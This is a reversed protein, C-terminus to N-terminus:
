GRRRRRVYGGLGAFALAALALTAPEPVVEGLFDLQAGGPNYQMGTFVLQVYRAEHRDFTYGNLEEDGLPLVTETPDGTFDLDDSFALVITSVRDAGILTIDRRNAYDIGDVAVRGGFDVVLTHPGTGSGAWDAGPGDLQDDFLHGIAYQTTNFQSSVSVVSPDPLKPAYFQIESIGSNSGPQSSSTVDFRVYRARIPQLTDSTVDSGGAGTRDYSRTAVM